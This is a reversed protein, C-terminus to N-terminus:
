NMNQLLHIIILKVILKTQWILNTSSTRKYFKNDYFKNSWFDLVLYDSLWWNARILYNNMHCILEKKSSTIKKYIQKDM